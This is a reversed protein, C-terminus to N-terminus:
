YTKVYYAVAATIAILVLAVILNGRAGPADEGSMGKKRGGIMAAVLKEGKFSYFAIAALHLGILLYLLNSALSHIGTLKDSMEKGVLKFLPGEILIDDNSFLGTGVQVALIGLLALVSLAGLPNHGRYHAPNGSFLGKLYAIVAGPGKIFDAFRAHRGGVVGWCIRFLILALVVHGSLVHLDMNGFQESLLSTAVSAVLLWHFMRTPVDWVLVGRSSDASQEPKKGNGVESM